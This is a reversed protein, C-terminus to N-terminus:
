TLFYYLFGAAVLAVSTAYRIPAKRPSFRSYAAALAGVAPVVALPAVRALYDPIDREWGTFDGAAARGSILGAAIAVAGLLVGASADRELRVEDDIQGLRGVLSMTSRLELYALAFFVVVVWWGPGEGTLAGGFAFATGLAFGAMALGAALNGREVVDAPVYMGLVPVRMGLWLLISMAMFVYLLTYFGVIDSAAGTQLVFWFWGLAFLMAARLVGLGPNHHAAFVRSASLPFARWLGWVTAFFGAIFIPTELTWGVDYLGMWPDDLPVDVVSGRLSRRPAEIEGDSLAKVM